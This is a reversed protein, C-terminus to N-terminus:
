NALARRMDEYQAKDIEGRAFREALIVLASAHIQTASPKNRHAQEPGTERWGSSFGRFAWYVFTFIALSLIMFLLPGMLGFFHWGLEESGWMHQTSTIM